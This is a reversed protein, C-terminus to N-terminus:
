NEITELLISTNMLHNYWDLALQKAPQVAWNVGNEDVVYYGGNVGNEFYFTKIEVIIPNQNAVGQKLM